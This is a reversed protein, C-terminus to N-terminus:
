PEGVVEFAAWYAPHAFQRRVVLAAARLAQAKSRGRGLEAYFRVMLQSTARDSVNWQSVVVTPTGAYLFARTLGVIGDGTLKGLGTSCGSLVVLDAALDLNFIEDVRLYGDEGSGAAFMLSSALPHDPAVLGHTAFHLIPFAGSERKVAAETADGGALLLVGRRGLQAAVRQGEERAYPLPELGSEVPPTPDVVVLARQGSVGADRRHKDRTYTFVSASPAFSLVHRELLSRGSEDRLAAFPVLALPGHPVIVVPTDAASPLWGALPAILLRDLERLPGNLATTPQSTGASVVEDVAARVTTALAELRERSVDITASHTVGDPGVV